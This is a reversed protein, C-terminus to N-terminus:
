QFLKLNKLYQRETKANDVDLKKDSSFVYFGKLGKDDEVIAIGESIKSFHNPKKIKAKIRDRQRAVAM